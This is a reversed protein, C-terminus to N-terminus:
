LKAQVTVSTEKKGRKRVEEGVIKAAEEACGWMSQWGYGGHGYNHVVLLTGEDTKLEEVELRVGADRTPRFGVVEAEVISRVDIPATSSPPLALSSCIELARRIIDTTTEPRPDPYYDDVERTGGIIVEGSARPIVYTREGGEGGALSGIQRTWGTKVWPARLKLVQGRVARVTQDNVDILTRAGIGTCNLVALPAQVYKRVDSLAALQPVRRVIGGLLTFENVLRRLYRAPEITISTFSVAHEIGDPLTSADHIRFDPLGELFRLHLDGKYLETQTLRMVGREEGKAADESEVWLREFTRMDFSRQRWDDDSAFSLHHAGAATSAFDPSLPDGPLQRALLLVPYGRKLLEVGTTLGICGAGVFEGVVPSPQAHSKTQRAAM